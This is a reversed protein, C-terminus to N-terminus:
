TEMSTKIYTAIWGTMITHYAGPDEMEVFIAEFYTNYTSLPMTLRLDGNNHDHLCLIVELNSYLEGCLIRIKEYTPKDEITM